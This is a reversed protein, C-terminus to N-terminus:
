GTLAAAAHAFGTALKETLGVEPTFFEVFKTTVFVDVFM